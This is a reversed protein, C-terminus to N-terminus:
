YSAGYLLEQSMEFGLEKRSHRPLVVASVSPVDVMDDWTRHKIQTPDFVLLLAKVIRVESWSPGVVVFPTSTSNLTFQRQDISVLFAFLRTSLWEQAHVREEQL